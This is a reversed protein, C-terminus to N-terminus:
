QNELDRVIFFDGFFAKQKRVVVELNEVKVSQLSLEGQKRIKAISKM